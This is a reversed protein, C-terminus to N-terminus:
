CAPNNALQRPIEDLLDTAVLPARHTIASKAASAFITLSSVVVTAASDLTTPQHSALMSAILGALVDGTGATSLEPGGIEDIQVIGSPTAVISHFGKLLAIGNFSKAISQACKERDSTDFGMKEAEGEHPTLALIQDRRLPTKSLLQLAGGDVILRAVDPLETAAPSGPGILVTASKSIEAADREPNLPVVDPYAHLVLETPLTERALYNIYGAGGRRAGGLALVAAGPYRTSGADVLLRGSSYKSGRQDRQHLLAALPESSNAQLSNSNSTAL